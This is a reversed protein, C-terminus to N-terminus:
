TDLLRFYRFLGLEMVFFLFVVISGSSSDSYFGITSLRGDPHGIDFEEEKVRAIGGVLTGAFLFPTIM